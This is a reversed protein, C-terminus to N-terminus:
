EEISDNFSSEFVIGFRKNFEQRWASDLSQQVGTAMFDYPTPIFSTFREKLFQQQLEQLGLGGDTAIGSADRDHVRVVYYATRPQNLGIGVDGDALQEFVLKMFDPGPQDVGDIFSEVPFALGMTPVSQSVRMWTFKPTERITVAPSENTGNITQGSLAAPIDAPAKKVLEQLEVARKEALQRAKEFKWSEVVLQRTAEDKLEPVRSPIDAIKWYAYKSKPSDARQPSYIGVRYRSGDMEFLVDAVSRANQRSVAEVASGIQEDLATALERHTMEKTEQYEFGNEKAFARCKDAFTAALKAQNSKEAQNYELSLETLFQFASDRADGMKEFAKELLIKERIQLKLEDDLERYRPKGFDKPMPRAPFDSLGPLASEGDTPLAPAPPTPDGVAAPKPLEAETAPKGAPTEAAPKDADATGKQPTEDDGCKPEQPSEEKPQEGETKPTNDGKPAPSKKETASETSPSEVAPPDTPVAPQEANTPAAADAPADPDIVEQSGNLDPLKLDPYDPFETIRYEEQHKLYYDVVEQDTAGPLGKEYAELDTAVLYGIQVKPFERFGPNGRDDGYRAKREEFYDRLESEAPEPVLKVFETVPIAVTTLAQRVHLKRFDEWLQEPALLATRGSLQGRTFQAMLQQVNAPPSMLRGVLQAELEERIIEFLEAEGIQVKRLASVYDQESLKDQTADKLFRNVAEDSVTVGLRRAEHQLVFAAVMSSESYDGFNAAPGPRKVLEAAVALFRNAKQRRNQLQGIKERSLNGVSTRVLPKNGAYTSGILAASGGALFGIAAFLVTHQRQYGVIAMGGACMVAFVLAVANPTLSNLNNVVGDFCFAFVALITVVVMWQKQNRRVSALFQMTM